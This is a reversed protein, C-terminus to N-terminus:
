PISSKYATIAPNNCVSGPNDGTAGCVLATIAIAAPLVNYSLQGGSTGVAQIDLTWNGGAGGGLHDPYYLTGPLVYKSAVDLLPYGSGYNSFVSSYNSPIPQLVPGGQSVPTRTEHEIPEFVIYPSSYTSNVFTFTDTNPYVDSSSSQMYRLGTFNGFRMLAIILPWRMFSCFPCYEAGIYVVIPKTGVHWPTGGPLKVYNSGVLSTATPGYSPSTAIAYLSNYNAPTVPTGILPNQAALNAAVYVGIIVVFAVVVVATIYLVRRRRERRRIKARM